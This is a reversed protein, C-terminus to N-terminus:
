DNLVMHKGEGGEQVVGESSGLNNRELKRLFAKISLPQELHFGQGKDCGWHRLLALSEESEVGEATVTYGLKHALDITSQVILADNNDREMDTVFSKDIKIEDVPLRKLYQLSSYGTGFDDIAFRIGAKSLRNVVNLAETHGPILVSETIELRLRGPSLSRRQLGASIFNYFISDQLNLASVNTSIPLDIGEHRWKKLQELVIHLVWYSLRNILGHQEALPIFEDPSLLGLRPHPWRILAEAGCIRGDKLDYQPQYHVVLEDNEIASRLESLINLKDLDQTDLHQNYIVMDVGTRRAEHMATRARNMLETSTLGDRPYWAVGIGMGVDVPQGDVAFPEVLADSVHRCVLELHTPETGLDLLLGFEDGGLRALMDTKRIARHLRLAVAKLLIDGYYHGLTDNIVKVRDLDIMVVALRHRAPNLGIISRDLFRTFFARNPLCTLDDHIARHRELAVTHTLETVTSRYLRNAVLVYISGVLLMFAVFIDSMLVATQTLYIGFALYGFIFLVNFVLLIWWYRVHKRIYRYAKCGSYFVRALLAIGILVSVVAIIQLAGSIM